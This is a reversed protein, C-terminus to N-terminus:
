PLIRFNRAKSRPGAFTFIPWAIEKVQRLHQKRLAECIPNTLTFNDLVTFISDEDM